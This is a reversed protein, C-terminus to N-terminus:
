FREGNEPYQHITGLDCGFADKSLVAIRARKLGMQLNRFLTSMNSGYITEDRALEEYKEL